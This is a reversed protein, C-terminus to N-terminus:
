RRTIRAHESALAPAYRRCISFRMRAPLGVSGQIAAHGVGFLCLCWGATVVVHVPTAAVAAAAHHEARPESEEDGERSDGHVEAELQDRGRGRRGCRGKVRKAGLQTTRATLMVTPKALSVAGGGGARRDEVVPNRTHRLEIWVEKAGQARGR